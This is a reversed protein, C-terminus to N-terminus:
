QRNYYDIGGSPEFYTRLYGDTSVVVFENTEELYYVSDGDEAEYKHLVDEDAIVANAAAEYEEASDFGMEIGHKEYHSDLLSDNRFEYVIETTEYSEQATAETEFIYSEEIASETETEPESEAETTTTVAETVAVTTTIAATRTDDSPEDEKLVSVGTVAGVIVVVLSALATLLTKGSKKSTGNEAGAHNSQAAKNQKRCDECRKPLELGKDQYFKVESDTLEFSTGCQKCVRKM